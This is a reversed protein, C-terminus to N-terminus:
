GEGDTIALQQKSPIVRKRYASQIFAARQIKRQRDKKAEDSLLSEQTYVLVQMAKAIERHSRRFHKDAGDTVQEDPNSIRYGRGRDSALHLNYDILLSRKLNEMYSLYKFQAKKYEDITEPDEISLLSKMEAHTILVGFGADDVM